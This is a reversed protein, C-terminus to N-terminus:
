KVARTLNGFFARSYRAIASYLTPRAPKSSSSDAMESLEYTLVGESNEIFSMEFIKKSLWVATHYEALAGRSERWGPLLVIEDSISVSQLCRSAALEISFGLPVESWDQFKPLDFYDFGADYDQSVPNIIYDYGANLLCKAAFNFAPANYYELGRMPGALYVITEGEEIRLWDEHSESFDTSSSGDSFQMMAESGDQWVVKGYMCNYSTPAIMFREGQILSSM